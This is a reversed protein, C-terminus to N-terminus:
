DSQNYVYQLYMRRRDERCLIKPRPAPYIQFLGRFQPMNKPLGHHRRAPRNIWGGSHWSFGAVNNYGMQLVRASGSANIFHMIYLPQGVKLMGALGVKM